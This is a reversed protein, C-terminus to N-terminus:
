ALDIRHPALTHGDDRPAKPRHHFHREDIGTRDGNEEVGFAAESTGAAKVTRVTADDEQTPVAIM